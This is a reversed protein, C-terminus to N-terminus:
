MTLRNSGLLEVEATPTDPDVTYVFGRNNGATEPAFTM